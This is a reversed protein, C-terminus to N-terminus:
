KKTLVAVGTDIKAPGTSYGNLAAVAQAMGLYGMTYPNQAM